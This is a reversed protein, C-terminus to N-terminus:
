VNENPLIFLPYHIKLPTHTHIKMLKHTGRLHLHGCFVLSRTLNEPGRIVAWQASGPILVPFYVRDEAVATLAKLQRAMEGTGWSTKM